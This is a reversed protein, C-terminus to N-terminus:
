DNHILYTSLVFGNLVGRIKRQTIHTKVIIKRKVKRKGLSLSFSKEQLIFYSSFIRVKEGESSRQFNVPDKRTNGIRFEM